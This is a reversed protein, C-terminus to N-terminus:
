IKLNRLGEKVDLQATRTYIQTTEIKSHGLIKSILEVKMGAEALDTARTHRLLHPYIKTKIGADAAIDKVMAQITRPAFAKHRINLFLPGSSRGDLHILLSRVLGPDVPVERRKDGKGQRIIILEQSTYLDEVTLNCFEELRAATEYLTQMMLGQKPDRRYAETIFRDREENSMRDVTGKAGRPPKLGAQKRVMKVINKFQTYDVQHKRILFAFQKAIEKQTM